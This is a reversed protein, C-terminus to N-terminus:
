GEAHLLRELRESVETWDPHEDQAEQLLRVAELLREPLRSLFLGFNGKARSPDQAARIANRYGQEAYGRNGLNNHAIAYVTWARENRKRRNLSVQAVRAAERWRECLMLAGALDDLYPDWDPQLDVAREFCRVAQEPRGAQIWAYGLAAHAPAAKDHRGLAKSLIKIADRPRRALRLARATRLVPELEEPALRGARGFANWARKWDGRAEHGCGITFHLEGCQPHLRLAEAALVDFRKWNHYRSYIELLHTAIRAESPLARWAERLWDRGRQYDGAQGLEDAVRLVESAEGRALADRFRLELDHPRRDPEM